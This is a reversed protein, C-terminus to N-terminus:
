RSMLGVLRSTSPIVLVQAHEVEADGLDEGGALDLEGAHARGGVHRRLLVRAVRDIRAGVDEGGAEHEVLQDRVPAGQGPRRRRLDVALQHGARRRPDESGCRVGIGREGDDALPRHRRSGRSRKWVARSNPSASSAARWVSRGAAIAMVAGVTTAVGAGGLGSGVTATGGGITTGDTTTAGGGATTTGGGATASGSDVIRSSSRGTGRATTSAIVATTMAANLARARQSHVTGGVVGCDARFGSADAGGATSAAVCAGLSGGTGALSTDGAAGRRDSGIGVTGTGGCADGLM